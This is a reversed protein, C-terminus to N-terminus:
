SALASLFPGNESSFSQALNSKLVYGHVGNQKAKLVHEPEASSTLMIVPSRMWEPRLRIQELLELGGMEPLIIDLLLVADPSLSEDTHGDIIKLAELGNNAVVVRNSLGAKEIHKKCLEVDVPSDEVLLIDRAM